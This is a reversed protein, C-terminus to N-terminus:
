VLDNAKLLGQVPANVDASIVAARCSPCQWMAQPPPAHLSSGARDEAASASRSARAQAAHCCAFCVTHGCPILLLPARADAATFILSCAPCMSDTQWTSSRSGAAEPSATLAPKRVPVPSADPAVPPPQSPATAPSREVHTADRAGHELFRGDRTANQLPADGRPAAWRRNFLEASSGVTVPADAM